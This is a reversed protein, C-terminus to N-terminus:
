VGGVRVLDLPMPVKGDYGMGIRTLPGWKSKRKGGKRVETCMHLSTALALPKRCRRIIYEGPLRLQKGGWIRGGRGGDMRFALGGHCLLEEQVPACQLLCPRHPHLPLLPRRLGVEHLHLLGPADADPSVRGVYRCVSM